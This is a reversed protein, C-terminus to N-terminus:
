KLIWANGDYFAIVPVFATTTYTARITAGANFTVVGAPYMVIQRGIWAPGAITNVATTGSLNFTPFLTLTLTSASAITPLTDDIGLNDTINFVDTTSTVNWSIPITNINGTLDNNLISIYSCGENLVIAFDQTAPLNDFLGILNGSINVHTALASVSVGFGVRSFSYAVSSQTGASTTLTIQTSTVITAITYTVSNIVITNGPWTTNAEGSLLTVTTGSTNCTGSVKLANAAIRSSSILIDKCNILDFGSNVCNYVRM